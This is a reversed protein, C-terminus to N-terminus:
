EKNLQEQYEQIDGFEGLIARNFIEIGHDTTDYSSAAFPIFDESISPFIVLCGIATKEENLWLLNKVNTYEIMICGEGM